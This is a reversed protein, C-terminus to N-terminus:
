RNIKEIIVNHRAYLKQLRAEILEPLDNTTPSIPALPRGEVKAIKLEFLIRGITM